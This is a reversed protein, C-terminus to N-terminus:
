EIRVIRLDVYVRLGSGEPRELVCLYSFIFFFFEVKNSGLEWVPGAQTSRIPQGGNAPVAFGLTM